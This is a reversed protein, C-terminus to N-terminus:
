KHTTYTALMIGGPMGACILMLGFIISMSFAQEPQLGALSFLAIAGTERVGWGAFSIPLLAVLFLLPVLLLYNIFNLHVGLSLGIFTYAIIGNLHVIMSTWFQQYFPKYKKFRSIDRLLLFIHGFSRPLKSRLIRNGSFNVAIFILTFFALAIIGLTLTMAANNFVVQYAPLLVLISLMLIGLGSIRDLLTGRTARSLGVYNKLLVVKYIDGGVGSPLLQNFWLGIFHVRISLILPISRNLTRMAYVFRLSSIIQAFIFIAFAIILPIYNAHSITRFSEEIDIKAL